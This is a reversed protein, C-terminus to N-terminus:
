WHLWTRLKWYVYRFGQRKALDMRLLVRAAAYDKQLVLQSAQGVLQRALYTHVDAMQSHQLETALQAIRPIFPWVTTQAKSQTAMNAADQHYYAVVAPDFAVPHLLAIRAWLDQDEGICEGVAFGGFSKCIALPIAVSSATALMDGAAVIKFYSAVYGRKFAIPFSHKPAQLRNKWKFAYGLAYWGAAPFDNILAQLKSLFTPEWSDDADLFVVYNGAAAAIGANRAHSVGREAIQLLRVGQGFSQALAPGGDTSGNDIVLVELAPTKQECVSQLTRLLTTEKNYLPIVVSFQLNNFM